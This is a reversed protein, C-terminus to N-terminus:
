REGRGFAEDDRTRDQQRDTQDGSTRDHEIQIQQDQFQRQDNTGPLARSQELQKDQNRDPSKWGEGLLADFNKWKSEQQREQQDFSRHEAILREYDERREPFREALEKLREIEQNTTYHTHEASLRGQAERLRQKHGKGFDGSSRGELERFSKRLDKDLKKFEREDEGPMREKKRQKKDWKKEAKREYFDDGYTQKTGIWQYLKGYEERDIRSIKGENLREAFDELKELSTYKTFTESDHQIKESDPLREIAREKDWPVPERKNEQSENKQREHEKEKDPQKEKREQNIKTNLERVMTEFINDGRERDYGREMQRDLTRDRDYGHKLQQDMDRALFREYYHNRELYRDGAERIKQYDKREFKVQHGNLDKGFVMVHAHDHDTNKHIVARWNLDLGKERGAESMVHRTYAAMDVGQVGPSLILKHAEVAAPQSRDIDLKVERGQIHDRDQSFFERPKGDERDDGRRYQIYNVHAKAKAKSQRSSRIYSHKAVSRM